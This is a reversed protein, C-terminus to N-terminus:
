QAVRFVIYRIQISGSASQPVIKARLGTSHVSIEPANAATYTVFTTQGISGEFFNQWNTGDGFGSLSGRVAIIAAPAYGLAPWSVIVSDVPATGVWTGAAHVALNSINESDFIVDNPPLNLNNADLGPKVFRMRKSGSVDKIFGTNAM